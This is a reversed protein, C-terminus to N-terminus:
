WMNENLSATRKDTLGWAVADRKFCQRLEDEPLRKTKIIVEAGAM